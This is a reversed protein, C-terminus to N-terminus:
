RSIDKEMPLVIQVSVDSLEPDLAQTFVPTTM